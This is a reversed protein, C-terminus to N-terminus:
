VFLLGRVSLYWVGWNQYRDTWNQFETFEIVENVKLYECSKDEECAYAVITDTSIYIERDYNLNIIMYLIVDQWKGNPNNYQM